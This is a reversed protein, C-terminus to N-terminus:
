YVLVHPDDARIKFIMGNQEKGKIGFERLTQFLFKNQSKAEWRKPGQFANLLDKMDALHEKVTGETLFRTYDLLDYYLVGAKEYIDIILMVSVGRYGLSDKWYTDDLQALYPVLDDGFITEMVESSMATSACCLQSSNVVTTNVVRLVDKRVIATENAVNNLQSLVTKAARLM